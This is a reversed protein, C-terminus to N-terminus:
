YNSVINSKGNERVCTINSSFKNKFHDFHTIVLHQQDQDMINTLQDIGSQDLGDAIEDMMNFEFPLYIKQQTLSKLAWAIAVSIRSREGESFTELGRENGHIDIATIPFEDTVTGKQTLRDTDIIVKLKSKLKQMYSNTEVKFRPIFDNIRAKRIAPFGKIIFNLIEDHEKVAKLKQDLELKNIEDEEIKELIFKNRSIIENYSKIDNRYQDIEKKKSESNMTSVDAYFKIEFELRKIEKSILDIIEQSSKIVQEKQDDAFKISELLDAEFGLKSNLVDIANKKETYSRADIKLEEVENNTNKWQIQVEELVNMQIPIKNSEQDILSVAFSKEFPLVKGDSVILSGECHPCKIGDRLDKQLKEVKEKSDEILRNTEIIKDNYKKKLGECLDLRTYIEEILVKSLEEEISKIKVKVDGLSELQNETRTKNEMILNIKVVKDQETKTLEVKKRSLEASLAEMEQIRKISQELELIDKQSTEISKNRLATDNILDKKSMTGELRGNILNLELQYNQIEGAIRDKRSKTNETALDLLRLNMFRSIFQFKDSRSSNKSTFVQAVEKSFYYTNMFDEFWKKYNEAPVGLYYLLTNQTKTQNDPTTKDEGNIVIKLDGGSEFKKRTIEISLNGQIHLYVETQTSYPGIIDNVSISGRKSTKGSLAWCIAELITSNHNIFGNAIFNHEEEVNLDWCEANSEEISEIPLWIVNIECLWNLQNWQSDDQLDDYYDLIEKVKVRSPNKKNIYIDLYKPKKKSSKKALEDLHILNRPLINYNTNYQRSSISEAKNIHAKLLDNKRKLGFGILEYFKKADRSYITLRHTTGTGNQWSTKKLDYRSIIGINLLMMRIEQILEFNNQTIIVKLRNKDVSGDTDFLGRLFGRQIYLPAELIAMPVRKYYSKLVIEPIFSFLEKLKKDHKGCTWNKKDKFSNFNLSLQFKDKLIRDIETVIFEDEKACTIKFGNEIIYGDGVIAGIFYTLDEDLKIDGIYESSGYLNYSYKIGLYDGIKLKDVKEYQLYGNDDLKIIKHNDKGAEINFGLRTRIKLTPIEGTYYINTKHTKDITEIIPGNGCWGEKNPKKVLEGIKKIGQTSFIYSNKELCKGAGNSDAGEEDRNEGLILIRNDKFENFNIEGDEYGCFNKLQLKVLKM